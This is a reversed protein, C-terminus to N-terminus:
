ALLVSGGRGLGSKIKMSGLLRKKVLEYQGESWKLKKRLKINGSKGGLATLTELFLTTSSDDDAPEDADNDQSVPRQPSVHGPKGGSSRQSNEYRRESARDILTDLEEPLLDMATCLNERIKPKFAGAAKLECILRPFQVEDYKWYANEQRTSM